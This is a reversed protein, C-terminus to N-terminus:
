DPQLKPFDALYPEQLGKETINEGDFLVNGQTPTDLRGLMSLLTTKSSGSPGLIVYMKGTKLEANVSQLVEKGKEYGHM